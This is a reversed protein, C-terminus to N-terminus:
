SLVGRNLAELRTMVFTPQDSTPVDFMRLRWGGAFNTLLLVAQRWRGSVADNQIEHKVEHSWSPLRLCAYWAIVRGSRLVDGFSFWGDPVPSDGEQIEM